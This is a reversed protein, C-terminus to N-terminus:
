DDETIISPRPLYDPSAGLIHDRAVLDSTFCLLGSRRWMAGFNDDDCLECPYQSCRRLAAREQMRKSPTKRNKRQARALGRLISM